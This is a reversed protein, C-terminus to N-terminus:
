PQRGLWRNLRLVALEKAKAEVEVTAHLGLWATPFDSPTIYDHHRFPRPGAWGEKPSSVHLVPERNWTGLARQTAEEVSLGDPRCRHHHVDYVMPIGEGACFPLLDAPAYTREDNELTLRSRVAGPLRCLNRALRSLAAAKDGYGGGGHINIVDAGIWSSVEAQYELDEISRRVIGTDTASLLIFQDPHFLLRIDHRRALAGCARFQAVIGDGEPLDGVDYRTAPHTKVPLIESNVRFAGIGSRACYVIAERLALANHLCLEALHKRVEGRSLRRMATVTTTRFRIPHEMFKCCLGLRLLTSM